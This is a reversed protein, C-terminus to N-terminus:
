SIKPYRIGPNNKIDLKKKISAQFTEHSPAVMKDSNFEIGVNLNSFTIIMKMKAYEIPWKNLKVEDM